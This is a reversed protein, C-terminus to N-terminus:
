LLSNKTAVWSFDQLSTHAGHCTERRLTDTHSPSVRSPSWLLAACLAMTFEGRLINWESLTPIKPQSPAIGPTPGPLFAHVPYVSICTVHNYQKKQWCTIHVVDFLGNIGRWLLGSIYVELHKSRNRRQFAWNKLREAYMSPESATAMERLPKWEM